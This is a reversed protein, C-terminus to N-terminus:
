RIFSVISFHNAPTILQLSNKDILTRVKITTTEPPFKIAISLLNLFRTRMRQKDLGYRDAGQQLYDVQEVRQNRRLKVRVEKAM